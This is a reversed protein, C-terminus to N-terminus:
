VLISMKAKIIVFNYGKKKRGEEPRYQDLYAEIYKFTFGEVKKNWM